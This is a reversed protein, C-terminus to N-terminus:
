HGFFDIANDRIIEHIKDYLVNEGASVAAKPSGQTSLTQSGPSPVGGPAFVEDEGPLPKADCTSISESPLTGDLLYQIVKADVCDTNYPFTTHTMENEIYLFGANPLTEFARLAGESPTAPDFGNQVMLIPAITEPVEPMATTPEPWFACPQATVSGGLLPYLENLENGKDIWFQPEKDWPGDNCVIATFLAGGPELIAREAADLGFFLFILYDEALLLAKETLVANREQDEAYAYTGVAEFFADQNEETVDGFTELIEAVAEAVILADAVDGVFAASYLSGIISLSGNVLAGKLERPLADYLEYIDDPDTGLGFVDNNRAAYPLAVERFSREFGMFFDFDTEQWATSFEVNGDLVMNGTNEPFLKAYWAGLWSGYSYGLFNLKEDGMLERILDMDRATQETDFYKYLPNNLCSQAVVKGTELLAAVNEESRDTHFNSNPLPDNNGCFLQVSGGVGRPSFGVIDYSDSLESLLEPTAVPIGLDENAEGSFVLGFLAGFGLGDGGPGGPNLLIAGKRKGEDGARVRLIGLNVSDLAPNEWDLPTQLTACELRDGLPEFLEPEFLIDPNCAEWNIVQNEFEALAEDPEDPTPPILDDITVDGCASLLLATVCLLSLLSLPSRNQM